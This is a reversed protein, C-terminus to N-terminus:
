ARKAVLTEVKTEAKGVAWYSATKEDKWVVKMEVKKVARTMDKREDKAVATM